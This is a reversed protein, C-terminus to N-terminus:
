DFKMVYGTEVHVTVEVKETSGRATATITLPYDGAVADDGAQIRARIQGQGTSPSVTVGKGAPLVLTVAAEPAPEPPQSGAQKWVMVAIESPQERSVEIRDTSIQLIYRAVKEKEEKKEAVPRAPAPSATPPAGKKKRRSVAIAGGVGILVAGGVVVNWLIDEGGSVQCDCDLDFPTNKCVKQCIGNICDAGGTCPMGNEPCCPVPVPGGSTTERYPEAGALSVLLLLSLVLFVAIRAPKQPFRSSRTHM